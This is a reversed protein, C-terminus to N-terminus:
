NRRRNTKRTKQNKRNIKRHTRRKTRRAKRSSEIGQFVSQNVVPIPIKEKNQQLQLKRFLALNDSSPQSIHSLNPSYNHETQPITQHDPSKKMEPTMLIEHSMKFASSNNPQYLELYKNLFYLPTLDKEYLNIFLEMGELKEIM